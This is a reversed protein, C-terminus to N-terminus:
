MGSVKSPWGHQTAYPDACGCTGRLFGTMFASYIDGGEVAMLEQDTMEQEALAPADLRSLAHLPAPATAATVSATDKQNVPVTSLEVASAMSATGLVIAVAVALTHITLSKM